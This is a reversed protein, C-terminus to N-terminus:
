GSTSAVVRQAALDVFAKAEDFSQRADTPDIDFVFGYDSEHRIAQLKVLLVNTKAELKGARVLREAVLRLVGGHTKVEVGELLLLARAAHFVAYYARSMADRRLALGLLADCARLAENAAAIAARANALRNEGTM